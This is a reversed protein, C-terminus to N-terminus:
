WCGAGTSLRSPLLMGAGRRPTAEVDLMQSPWTIAQKEEPYQEAAQCCPIASSHLIMASCCCIQKFGWM